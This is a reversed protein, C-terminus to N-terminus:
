WFFGLLWLPIQNNNASLIDDAFVYSNKVSKIQRKSKSKGGIEFVYKGNVCFDGFTPATLEGQTNLCTAAFTERITGIEPNPSYSYAFNTNNLFIKQPKQFDKHSKDSPYLNTLIEGENLYYLYKKLSNDNEINLHRSLEAINPTFPCKLALHKLLRKIKERSISDIEKHVSSLDSDIVSNISNILSNYYLVENPYNNRTLFYGSRLYEKFLTLIDLNNTRCVKVINFAIEEANILIENLSIMTLNLLYNKNLYERFSLGLAHLMIHRRSLDASAYDLRLSSSGSVMLTLSPFADLITKIAAQWNEYKHIEDIALYQGGRKYYEHSFEALPSTLM